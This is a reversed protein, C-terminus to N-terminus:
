TDGYARHPGTTDDAVPWRNSGSAVPRRRRPQPRIRTRWLPRTESARGVWDLSVMDWRQSMQPFPGIVPFLTLWELTCVFRRNRGLRWMVWRAILPFSTLALTQM